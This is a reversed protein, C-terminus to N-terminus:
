RMVWRTDTREIPADSRPNLNGPVAHRLMLTKRLVFVRGTDPAIVSKSEGSFGEAYVTVEDPSLDNCPWVILGERANEQGELIRGQIGIQDELYPNRLRALLTETVVPAVGRDSRLIEGEDTAIEFKPALLQDAGTNNTVKFTLYYFFMNGEVPGDVSALRLLGPEIDLQWKTPIADPEPAAHAMPANMIAGAVGAVVALGAVAAASRSFAAVLARCCRSLQVPRNM